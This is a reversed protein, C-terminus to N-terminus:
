THVYKLEKGRMIKSKRCSNHDYGLLHLLGHISYLTLEHSPTTNFIKANHIATDSSVIIDAYLGKRNFPGANNFALVDTPGTKKLYRKNLKRILSDNIFSVTIEGGARIGEEKLARKILRKIRGPSLSAKKQLNRVAIRLM